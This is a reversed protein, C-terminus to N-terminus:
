LQYPSTNRHGFHPQDLEEAYENPENFLLCITNELGNVTAQEINASNLCYGLDFKEQKFESRKSSVKLYKGDIEVSRDVFKFKAFQVVKDHSNMPPHHEIHVGLSSIIKEGFDISPELQLYVQDESPSMIYDFKEISHQSTTCNSRHITISGFPKFASGVIPVQNVDEGDTDLFNLKDNWVQSSNSPTFKKKNSMSVKIFKVFKATKKLQGYIKCMAGKSPQNESKPVSLNCVYFQVLIKFDTDLNDFVKDIEFHLESESKGRDSVSSTNLMTSAFVKEQQRVICFVYISPASFFGFFHSISITVHVCILKFLKCHVRLPLSIQHLVVRGLGINSGTKGM